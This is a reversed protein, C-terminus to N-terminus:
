PAVVGSGARDVPALSPELMTDGRESVRFRRCRARSLDCSFLNLDVRGGLNPQALDAAFVIGTGSADQFRVWQPVVAIPDGHIDPIIPLKLREVLRLASGKVSAWVIQNGFVVGVRGGAWSGRARGPTYRNQDTIQTDLRSLLTGDSLRVVALEIRGGQSLSLLVRSGDPSMAVVASRAVHPLLRRAPRHPTLVEVGTATMSTAVELLARRGAAPFLGGAGVITPGLAVAEGQLRPREMPQFRLRGVGERFDARLYLVSGDPRFTPDVAGSIALEDRGTALDRVRLSASGAIDGHVRASSHVEYVLTRGDSSLSSPGSPRGQLAISQAGGGGIISAGSVYLGTPRTTSALVQVTRGGSASWAVCSLVGCSILSGTVCRLLRTGV